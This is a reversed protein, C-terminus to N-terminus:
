KAHTFNLPKFILSYLVSGGRSTKIGIIKDTSIEGGGVSRRNHILLPVKVNGTSRGVRGTVDYVEGWSIGTSPDGYDLVIRTGDLRCQELINIVETSTHARYSTGNVIKYENM